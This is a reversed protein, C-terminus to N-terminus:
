VVSVIDLRFLNVHGLLCKGPLPFPLYLIFSAQFFWTGLVLVCYIRALSAMFNHPLFIEITGAVACVYMVSTPLIHLMTEVPQKGHMHAHFGFSM